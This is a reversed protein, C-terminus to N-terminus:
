KQVDRNDHRYSEKDQWVVSMRHSGHHGKKKGCIYGQSNRKLLATCKDESRM